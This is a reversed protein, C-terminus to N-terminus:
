LTHGYANTQLNKEYELISLLTQKEKRDYELKKKLEAVEKELQSIKASFIPVIVTTNISLGFNSSKFRYTNKM